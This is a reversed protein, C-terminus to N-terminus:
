SQDHLNHAHLMDHHINNDLAMKLDFSSEHTDDENAIHPLSGPTSSYSYFYPQIYPGHNHQEVSEDDFNQMSRISQLNQSNFVDPLKLHIKSNNTQRKHSMQTMHFKSYKSQPTDSM